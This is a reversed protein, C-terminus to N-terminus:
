STMSIVPVNRSVDPAIAGTVNIQPAADYKGAAVVPFQEPDDVKVLSSGGAPIVEAPPPAEPNLDVKPDAKMQGCNVLLVALALSLLLAGILRPAASVLTHAVNRKM